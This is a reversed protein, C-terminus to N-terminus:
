SPTSSSQSTSTSPPNRASRRTTLLAQPHVSPRTTKMAPPSFSSKKGALAEAIKNFLETDKEINKCGMIVIPMTVADSVAKALAVCEEVSKNAGNPDAGEFHLCLFDAGEMTEARKAMDVVTECGAYFAQEGPMTYESM